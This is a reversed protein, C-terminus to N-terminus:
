ISYHHPPVNPLLIDQRAGIIAGTEGDGTAAKASEAEFEGDFSVHGGCGSLGSM